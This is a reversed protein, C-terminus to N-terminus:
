VLLHSSEVVTRGQYEASDCDGMTAFAAPMVLELGGMDRIKQLANADSNVDFATANLQATFTSGFLAGGMVAVAAITFMFNMRKNM